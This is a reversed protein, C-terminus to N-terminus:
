LGHPDIRKRKTVKKKRTLDSSGAAPSSEGPVAETTQAGKEPQYPTTLVYLGLLHEYRKSKASDAYSYM